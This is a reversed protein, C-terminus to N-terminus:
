RFPGVPTASAVIKAFARGSPSMSVFTARTDSVCEATFSTRRRDPRPVDFVFVHDIPRRSDQQEVARATEARTAHLEHELAFPPPPCQAEGAQLTPQTRRNAPSM